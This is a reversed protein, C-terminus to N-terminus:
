SVERAIRADALERGITIAVGDVCQIDVFAIAWPAEFDPMDQVITAVVRDVHGGREIPNVVADLAQLPEKEHREREQHQEEAHRRPHHGASCKSGDFGYAAFDFPDAGLVQVTAYGLGRGV